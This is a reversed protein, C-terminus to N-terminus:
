QTQCNKQEILKNENSSLSIPIDAGISKGITDIGNNMNEKIFEFTSQKFSKSSERVTDEAKKEIFSIVSSKTLEITNKIKDNIKQLNINPITFTYAKATELSSYIYIASGIFATILLFIFIKKSRTM